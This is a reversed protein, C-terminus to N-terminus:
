KNKDLYEFELQKDCIGSCLYGSQFPVGSPKSGNEKIYNVRPSLWIMEVRHNKFLEFRDDESLILKKIQNIFSSEAKNGFFNEINTKVKNIFKNQNEILILNSNVDNKISDVLDYITNGKGLLSKIEQDKNKNKVGWIMSALSGMIMQSYTLEQETQEKELNGDSPMKTGFHKKNDNKIEAVDKAIQARLSKTEAM